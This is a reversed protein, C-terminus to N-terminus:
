VIPNLLPILDTTRRPPQCGIRTHGPCPAPTQGCVKKVGRAPFNAICLAPSQQYFVKLMDPSPKGCPTSRGHGSNDPVGTALHIIENKASLLRSTEGDPICLFEVSDAYLRKQVYRYHISGVELEGDAREFTGSANSYPIADASVKFLILDSADYQDNDLRTEWRADARCEFWSIFLWYGM